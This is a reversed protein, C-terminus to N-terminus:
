KKIEAEIKVGAGSNKGGRETICRSHLSVDCDWM